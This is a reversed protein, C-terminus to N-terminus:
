MNEFLDKRAKQMDQLSDFGSWQGREELVAKVRVARESLDRKLCYLYLYYYFKKGGEQEFQVFVEYMLHFPISSYQRTGGGAENHYEVGRENLKEFVAANLSPDRKFIEYLTLEKKQWHKILVQYLYREASNMTAACKLLYKAASNELTAAVASYTNNLSRLKKLPDKFKARQKAEISKIVKRSRQLDRKRAAVTLKIEQRYENERSDIENLFKQAYKFEDGSPYRKLIVVYLRRALAYDHVSLAIDALRCTESFDRKLANKYELEFEKLRIQERPNLEELSLLNMQGLADDFSSIKMLASMAILKQKFLHTLEEAEVGNSVNVLEAEPLLSATDIKNEISAGQWYSNLQRQRIMYALVVMIISVIGILYIFKRSKPQPQFKKEIHSLKEKYTEPSKLIGKLFYESSKSFEDKGLSVNFTNPEGLLLKLAMSNRFFTVQSKWDLEPNLYSYLSNRHEFDNVWPGCSLGDLVFSGTENYYLLLALPSFNEVPNNVLHDFMSEFSKIVRCAEDEVSKGPRLFMRYVPEGQIHPRVIFTMSREDFSGKIPRFDASSPLSQLGTVYNKLVVSDKLAADYVEVEFIASSNKDRVEFWQCHKYAYRLVPSGYSYKDFVEMVVENSIAM